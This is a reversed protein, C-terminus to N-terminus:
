YKDGKPRPVPPSVKEKKGAVLRVGCYPCDDPDSLWFTYSAGAGSTRFLIQNCSPCRWLFFSFMLHAGLSGMAIAVALLPPQQPDVIMSYAVYLLAFPFPVLFIRVFVRQFEWTSRIYEDDTKEDYKPKPNSKKPLM